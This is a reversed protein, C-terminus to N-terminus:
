PRGRRRVEVAPAVDDDDAAARHEVRDAEGRRDGVPAEPEDAQRRRREAWASEPTPTLFPTLRKPLFFQSPANATGQATMLSVAKSAVRGSRSKM